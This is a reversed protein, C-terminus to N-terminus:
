KWNYLAGPDSLVFSAQFPINERQELNTVPFEVATAAPWSQLTKRFNNLAGRNQAMGSLSIRQEPGPLSMGNIVIDKPLVKLLEEFFVSWKPISGVLPSTEGVISNFKEARSELDTIDQSVPLSSLSSIQKSFNEQITMMLGLSALFSGAFFISVGITMNTIFASFSVARTYEYAKETGLPMLSILKDEKRPLVARLAAGVSVLWKNENTKIEPTKSFKPDIKLEEFSFSKTVGGNRTAYFNKVKEVEKPLLDDGIFEKPLSRLFRLLKNKFIFLVVGSPSKQSVLYTEKDSNMVRMASLPHFEVAVANIKAKSLCELYDDIIKKRVAAFSIENTEEATKTEDPKEWDLYVDELKFPLQFGVTLKMAEELKEGSVAKPFPFMKYYIQDSPISVVFYELKDTVRGGLKKLASILADKNKIAGNAITEKLLPEEAIAAIKMEGTKYDTELSVLRLYEESIDLGAVPEERTFFRLFNM